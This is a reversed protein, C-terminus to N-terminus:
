VQPHVPCSRGDMRVLPSDDALPEFPEIDKPDRRQKQSQEPLEVFQTVHISDFNLDSDDLPVAKIMHRWVNHKTHLIFTWPDAPDEAPCCLLVTAQRWIGDEMLGWVQKGDWHKELNEITREGKPQGSAPHTNHKEGLIELFGDLEIPPDAQM